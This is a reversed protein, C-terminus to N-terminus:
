STTPYQTRSLRLVWWECIHLSLQPVLYLLQCGPKAALGLRTARWQLLFGKVYLELPRLHQLPPALCLIPTNPRQSYTEPMSVWLGMVGGPSAQVRPPGRASLNWGKRGRCSKGGAWQDSTGPGELLRKGRERRPGRPGARRGPGVWKRHRKLEAGVQPPFNREELHAAAEGEKGAPWSLGFRTPLSTPSWAELWLPSTVRGCDCLRSVVGLWSPVIPQCSQGPLSTECGAAASGRGVRTEPAVRQRLAPCCRDSDGSDERGLAM